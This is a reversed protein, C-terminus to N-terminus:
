GVATLAAVATVTVAMAAISPEGGFLDDLDADVAFRRQVQETLRAARLSDGGLEFFNDWVGVAELELVETWLEELASEVETRPAQFPTGFEPRSRPPEPLNARDIKGNTTLPLVGVLYAAPVMFSPLRETLAQRLQRATPKEGPRPEVYAALWTDGASDKKALVAAQRVGPQAALVVEIEGLHVRNGRVKVQGDTRGVIEISGDAWYRALDGTRYLVPHRDPDVPNPIWKEATAAPQNLYGVSLSDGAIGIEGVVGPPQPRFQEDLVYMTVNATPRGIPPLRLARGEEGLEAALETLDCCAAVTAEASGYLNVLHFPLGQRPWGQVREGCVRVNRLATDVPWDLACLREAMAKMLLAHSIREAVLWDRLLEPAAAVPVPPIHVSGGAALVSFVEVEVMGYGPAALWAGRSAPGMGCVTAMSRILNRASGFRVMVAKPQGTSGSTYCIHILDDAAPGSVPVATGTPASPDPEDLCLVPAHGVVKDRHATHTLVAVASADRIMFRVRDEPFEPDLLIAAAARKFCALQAVLSAAARPFCVGVRDGSGVGAAALRDALREAAADLEGFTMRGDPWAVALRDPDTEAWRAVVDHFFDPPVPQETQNWGRVARATEAATLLPLDGIRGTPDATMGATIRALHEAYQDATAADFDSDAIELVWGDAGARLLISASPGLLDGDTETVAVEWPSESDLRPVAAAAAALLEGATTDPSVQLEVVGPSTDTSAVGVTVVPEGTYRHLLAALAALSWRSGAFQAQTPAAVIRRHVSRGRRRVARALPLTSEPMSTM